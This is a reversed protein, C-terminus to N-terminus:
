FIEALGDVARWRPLRVLLDEPLQAPHARVEGPRALDDVEEVERRLDGGLLCRMLQAALSVHDVHTRGRVGRLVRRVWPHHLSPVVHDDVLRVHLRHSLLEFVEGLAAAALVVAPFGSRISRGFIWPQAAIEASSLCGDSSNPAPCARGSSSLSEATASPFYRRKM